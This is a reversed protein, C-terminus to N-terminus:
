VFDNYGNPNLKQWRWSDECMRNLDFKTEWELILKAKSVDAYCQPVDGLRREVIEFPISIGSVKEFTKIVDKVSYGIGTGLNCTLFSSSSMFKLAKVHGKALDVVHIYDRVGTGDPTLYDGGFVKLKSRLGVAVQTIFPMLNAPHGKPDEGIQGSLHAGIPNFYRLITISWNNDSQFLDDLIGEIMLKSRGYPNTVSLPHGESIPVIEPNGYVTASSSFVLKKCNFLTMVGCLVLTGYVNNDFYNLPSEVSEGVSKLGAFHIVATISYKTFVSMLDERSCIDGKVFSVAKGTLNEVRKLAVEYSNSLNDFVVVDFGAEILEVCTHTGIYGAGGTLLIM